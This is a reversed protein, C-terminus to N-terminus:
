NSICSIYLDIKNRVTKLYKHVLFNALVSSLAEKKGGTQNAKQETKLSVHALRKLTYGFNFM